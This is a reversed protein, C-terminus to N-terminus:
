IQFHNSRPAYLFPLKGQISRRARVGSPTAPCQSRLYQKKYSIAVGLHPKSTIHAAANFKFFSRSNNYIHREREALFRVANM